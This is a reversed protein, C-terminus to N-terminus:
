FNIVRLQSDTEIEAGTEFPKKNMCEVFKAAMGDAIEKLNGYATLDEFNIVATKEKQNNAFMLLIRGTESDYIRGEVAMSAQTPSDLSAKAGFKLPIMLLGIPTFNAATSIAGLIPKGPVIKVIAIELVMTSPGPKNVVTLRQQPDEEIATKFADDMYKAFQAVDQDEDGMWTRINNRELWNRDLTKGIFIPKVIIKKYDSIKVNPNRWVRDVPVRPDNKMLQPDKLFGSDEVPTAKCGCFVLALFSALPVFLCLKLLSFVRGNM